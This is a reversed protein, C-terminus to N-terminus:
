RPERSAAQEPAAPSGTEAWGQGGQKWGSPRVPPMRLREAAAEARRKARFLDAASPSADTTDNHGGLVPFSLLGLVLATAALIRM